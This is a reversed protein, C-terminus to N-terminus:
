YTLKDLSNSYYLNEIRKSVVKWSYKKKVDELGATILQHRFRSNKLIEVLIEAYKQSDNTDVLVGNVGNKIVDRYGAINSAVVPTASAMAEILVIGFSEGGEAPSTYVKASRFYVPIMEESVFGEFEVEKEIGLEQVMKKYLNRLPGKGVVFLKADKVKKKVHVFAKLLRHLGKRRDLRGVFLISNGDMKKLKKGTPTFREDDVGNPIIYYPGPIYPEHNKLATESVAIKVDIKEYLKGFLWKFIRAGRGKNKESASHFTAITRTNSYKLAFFSLNPFMPGNLHIIDYKGREVIWKMKAPIEFGFPATAYSGNMPIYVVKGVRIAKYKKEEHTRFSTAVINVSHGSRELHLALNGVYESLGSPYPYYADTVLLIKM